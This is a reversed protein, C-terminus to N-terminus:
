LEGRLGILPLVAPGSVQQSEDYDYRYALYMTNSGSPVWWLEGYATLSWWRGRFTKELHLDVKHYDPLRESNTEGYIPLYSDDAAVYLGDEVPTFPMGAAARYRVGANWTPVFTWSAVVNFAWPQDYDFTEGDREARAIAASFWAFFKERLRYRSTLELGFARGEVGGRPAEGVDQEVLGESWKGYGELGVEWRRAIATEVGAAVQRSTAHGLAPDGVVPALQLTTPFQSYQGAAVRVRTDPGALWRANFRPDVTVEGALTDGDVRVGPVLRV